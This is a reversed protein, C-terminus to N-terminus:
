SYWLLASSRVIEEVEEIDNEEYEGLDDEDEEFQQTRAVTFSPKGQEEAEDEEAAEELEEQQDRALEFIKRSTKPDLITEGNEEDDEQAAKRRKGPRAVKGYKVAHDDEGLQVYLPDHRSKGSPKATRPMALLRPVSLTTPLLIARVDLADTPNSVNESNRSRIPGALASWRHMDIISASQETLKTPAKLVGDGLILGFREVGERIKKDREAAMDEVTLRPESKV